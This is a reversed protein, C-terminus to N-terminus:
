HNGRDINLFNSSLTLCSLKGGGADRCNGHGSLDAKLKIDSIVSLAAEKFKLAEEEEMESAAQDLAEALSRLDDRLKEMAAVLLDTEESSLKFFDNDM